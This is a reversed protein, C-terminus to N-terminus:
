GWSGARYGQYLQFSFPVSHLSWTHGNCLFLSWLLGEALSGRCPRLAPLWPRKREVTLLCLPNPEKLGPPSHKRTGLTPPAARVQLRRNTPRPHALHALQALQHSTTDPLSPHRLSSPLTEPKRQGTAKEHWAKPDHPSLSITTGDEHARKQFSGPGQSEPHVQTLPTLGLQRM